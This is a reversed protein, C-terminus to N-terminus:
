HYDVIEVDYANNDQWKFCIRYKDNIRISYQGDRDGSLKELRNSPPVKLEELRGSRNLMALKIIASKLIAVPFKRSFGIEFVKATEKCKFSQIL